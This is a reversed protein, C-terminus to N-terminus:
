SQPTWEAELDTLVKQMGALTKPRRLRAVSVHTATRSCHRFQADALGLAKLHHPKYTNRALLGVADLGRQPEIHVGEDLHNEMLIYVRALPLPQERYDEVVDLHFKELRSHDRALREPAHAIHKLADAWLKIRALSPQAWPLGNADLDIALLDDSIVRYGRQRLHAALTSKGAGSHGVFAVAQGNVEIASAHLVLLGRQHLLVGFASGLLYLRLNEPPADPAPQVTIHNGTSIRYRGGEPIDLQFVGEGAQWLPGEHEVKPLRESIEGRKIRVAPTDTQPATILEPLMFESQVTLGHIRYYHPM